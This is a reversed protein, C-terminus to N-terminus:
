MDEREVASSRIGTTVALATRSNARPPYWPVVIASTARAARMEGAYTNLSNGLLSRSNTAASSSQKWCITSASVM